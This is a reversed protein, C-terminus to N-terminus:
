GLPMPSTLWHLETPTATLDNPVTTEESNNPPM